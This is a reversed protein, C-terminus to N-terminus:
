PARTGFTWAGTGLEFDTSKDMLISGLFCDKTFTQSITWVFDTQIERFNVCAKIVNDHVVVFTNGM